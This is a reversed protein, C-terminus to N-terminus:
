ATLAHLVVEARALFPELAPQLTEAELELYAVTATLLAEIVEVAKQEAPTSAVAAATALAWELERRLLHLVEHNAVVIGFARRCASLSSFGLKGTEFTRKIRSLMVTDSEDLHDVVQRGFTEFALDLM